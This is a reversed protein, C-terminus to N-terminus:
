AEGLLSGARPAAPQAGETMSGFSNYVRSVTQSASWLISIEGNVLGLSFNLVQSFERSRADVLAMTDKIGSVLSMLRKKEAPTPITAVFESVRITESGTLAALAASRQERLVSLTDVVQGRKTALDSVEDAKLRIVSSQERELLSLYAKYNALEKELTIELNRILKPDLKM